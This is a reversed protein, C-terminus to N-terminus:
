GSSTSAPKDVDGLIEALLEDISSREDADTIDAKEYASRAEEFLARGRELQGTEVEIGALVARAYVTDHNDRELREHRIELLKELVNRSEDKKERQYLTVALPLMGNVIEEPTATPDGQLVDVLRRYAQEATDLRELRTASSGLFRLLMPVESDRSSATKELVELYRPVWELAREWDGAQRLELVLERMNRITAEDEPGDANSILRVGRELHEVAAAHDEKASYDLGINAEWYGLNAEINRHIPADPPYMTDAISKARKTYELAEHPLGEQARAAGLGMYAQPILPNIAQGISESYSIFRELYPVADHTKGQAILAFGLYESTVQTQPQNEGYAASFIPLIRRLLSEAEAPETQLLASSLMMRSSATAVHEAGFAEEAAQALARLRPVVDAQTAAERVQQWASFYRAMAPNRDGIFRNVSQQLRLEYQSAEASQGM